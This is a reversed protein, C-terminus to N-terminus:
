TFGRRAVLLGGRSASLSRRLDPPTCGALLAWSNSRAVANLEDGLRSVRLASAEAGRLGTYPPPVARPRRVPRLSGRARRGSREAKDGQPLGTGRTHSDVASPIAAPRSLPTHSPVM